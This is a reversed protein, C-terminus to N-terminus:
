NHYLDDVSLVYTKLGDAMEGYVVFQTESEPLDLLEQLTRSDGKWYTSRLDEPLIRGTYKRM